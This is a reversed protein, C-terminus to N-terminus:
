ALYVDNSTSTDWPFHPLRCTTVASHQCINFALKIGGISAYFTTLLADLMTTPKIRVYEMQIWTIFWWFNLHFGSKHSALIRHM